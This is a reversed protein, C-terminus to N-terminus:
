VRWAHEWKLAKESLTGEGQNARGGSVRLAEERVKQM